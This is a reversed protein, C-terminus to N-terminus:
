ERADPHSWERCLIWGDWAAGRRGDCPSPSLDRDRDQSAIGSPGRRPQQMHSSLAGGGAKQQRSAGWPRPRQRDALHRALVRLQRRELMRQLLLLLLLRVLLRRRCERLQLEM